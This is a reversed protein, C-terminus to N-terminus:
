NGALNLRYTATVSQYSGPLYAVLMLEQAQNAAYIESAALRGVLQSENAALSVDFLNTAFPDSEDQQDYVVATYYLHTGDQSFAMDIVASDGSLEQSQLTALDVLLLTDRVDAEQNGQEQKLAMRAGDPSLAYEMGAGVLERGSGDPHIRHVGSNGEADRATFYIFDGATAVQGETGPTEDLYRVRDGEAAGLTYSMLQLNLNENGTMAYLTNSDPGWAFSATIAGFGEEGPQLQAFDNELDFIYLIRQYQETMEVQELVALYRGDPSYAAQVISAFPAAQMSEPRLRTSNGAADMLYLEEQIWLLQDDGSLREVQNLPKAYLAQAGDPTWCLFRGNSIFLPLSQAQGDREIMQRNRLAAVDAKDNYEPLSGIEIEAAVAEKGSLAEGYESTISVAFNQAEELTEFAQSILTVNKQDACLTPTLRGDHTIKGLAYEDFANLLAYYRSVDPKTLPRLRIILEGGDTQVQYAMPASFQFYVQGPRDEVSVQKFMGQYYGTDPIAPATYDWNVVGDLAISLRYPRALESVVFHPAQQLPEEAFGLKESGKVFQLRVEVGEETPSVSVQKLNVQELSEGGEFTQHTDYYEPISSAPEENDYATAKPQAVCGSLLLAVALIIGLYRVKHLPRGGM